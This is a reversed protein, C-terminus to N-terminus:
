PGPTEPGPPISSAAPRPATLETWVVRVSAADLSPWAFVVLVATWVLARWLLVDRLAGRRSAGLYTRFYCFDIRASWVVALLATWVWLTTLLEWARQPPLFAWTAAIGVLLLTWPAHGAFFTDIAQPLSPPRGRRGILVLLALLEVFPLFAWYVTTPGVLRATLTGTTFLSM